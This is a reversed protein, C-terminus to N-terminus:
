VNHKNIFNSTVTNINYYYCLCHGRVLKLYTQRKTNTKTDTNNQEIM